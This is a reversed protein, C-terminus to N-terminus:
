RKVLDETGIWSFGKEFLRLFPIDGFIIQTLLMIIATILAIVCFVLLFKFFGDKHKRWFTSFRQGLTPKEKESATLQIDYYLEPFATYAHRLMKKRILEYSASKASSKGSAELLELLLKACSNVCHTEGKKEDLKSLDMGMVFYISNDRNIHVNKEELMLYMFPYPIQSSICEVVLNHAVEELSYINEMQGPGFSLLKREERYPFLTIMQENYFFQKIFPRRYNGSDAGYLINLAKKRYESDHLVLAIYRTGMPSHLDQLVLVDNIKGRFKESIVALKMQDVQYIM